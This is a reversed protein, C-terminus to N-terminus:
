LAIKHCFFQPISSLIQSYGFVFFISGLLLLVYAKNRKIIGFSTLYNLKTNESRKEEISSFSFSLILLTSLLFLSAYM